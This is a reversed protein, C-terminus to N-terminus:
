FVKDTKFNIGEPYCNIQVYDLYSIISYLFIQGTRCTWLYWVIPSPLPSLPPLTLFVHCSISTQPCLNIFFLNMVSTVEFTEKLELSFCLYSKRYNFSFFFLPISIIEVSNSVSISSLIWLSLPEFPVQM